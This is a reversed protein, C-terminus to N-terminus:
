YNFILSRIDSRMIDWQWKFFSYMKGAHLNAGSSYFGGSPSLIGKQWNYDM